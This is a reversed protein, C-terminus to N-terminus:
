PIIMEFHSYVAMPRAQADPTFCMGLSVKLIFDVTLLLVFDAFGADAETASSMAVLFPANMSLESPLRRSHFILPGIKRPLM